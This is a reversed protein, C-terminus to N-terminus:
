VVSRLLTEFTQLDKPDQILARARLTNALAVSGSEAAAVCMFNVQPNRPNLAFASSLTRKEIKKTNMFDKFLLDILNNVDRKCKEVTKYFSIKYEEVYLQLPVAFPYPASAEVVLVKNSLPSDGKIKVPAKLLTLYEGNILYDFVQKSILDSGYWYFHTCGSAAEGERYVPTGTTAYSENPAEGEWGILYTSM